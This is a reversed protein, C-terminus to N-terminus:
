CHLCWTSRFNRHMGAINYPTVSLSVFSNKARAIVTSKV